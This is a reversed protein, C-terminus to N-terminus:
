QEKTRSRRSGGSTEDADGEGDAPPEPASSSAPQNLEEVRRVAEMFAANAEPGADPDVWVLQDAGLAQTVEDVADDAPGWERGGITRGEADVVVPSDTPNYAVQFM